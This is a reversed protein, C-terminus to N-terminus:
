TWTSPHSLQWMKIHLHTLKKQPIINLASPMYSFACLSQIHWFPCSTKTDTFWCPAGWFDLLLLQFFMHNKEGLQIISTPSTPIWVNMWWEECRMCTVRSHLFRLESAWSFYGWELCHVQTSNMIIKKWVHFASLVLSQLKKKGGLTSLTCLPAFVRSPFKVKLASLLSDLM